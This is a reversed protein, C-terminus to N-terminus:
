SGEEAGSLGARHWLAQRQEVAVRRIDALPRRTLAGDAVVVQGDVVVDRVDAATHSHVIESYIPGTPSPACHVGDRRVVVLDARRGPQLSGVQGGLGLAQAGGLTAMEFARRASLAGPGYRPAHLMAALRMENWMSLFNNCAAGDAGLAVNIGRGLYQPIPAIGSALKLNASPCHCVHAGRQAVLDVEGEDLWVSHAMVLSPGLAGWGDLAYVDRGGPEAAVREAQQRNENVHTHLVLERQAAIEVVEGWLEPTANRPGRPSAAVRLRGDETGHWDDALETLVHRAEETTQGIMETGPEVRDMLAAGLTARIGLDAAAGFAVETYRTTEMGLVTTTGGLLLEAISLEASAHVSAEDHAQELPWVRQRLWEVVDLDDALGRFLTQCLHVHAQVFGPLV